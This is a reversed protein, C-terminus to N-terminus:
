ARVVRVVRDRQALDRHLTVTGGSSSWIDMAAPGQGAGLEVLMVGGAAVAPWVRQLLARHHGLGDDDWGVLAGKPEHRKVEPDVSEWEVPTLYPPNSVVVDYAGQPAWPGALNGLHFEVPANLAVANARAVALTDDDVELAHVLADKWELALCIALCGTGTGVDLVRRPTSAARPHALALEVLLESEPRPALTHPTVRFTHKWFDRRGLIHSVPERQARRKMLARFAVLEAALLPKDMEMYLQIRQSGLAHALLLEADLKPNDVGRRDFEERTWALVRRVTWVTEQEVNGM